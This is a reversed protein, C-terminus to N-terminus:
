VRIKGPIKLWFDKPRGKRNKYVEESVPAACIGFSKHAKSLNKSMACQYGNPKGDETKALISFDKAKHEANVHFHINCLNMNQYDDAMAFIRDNTGMTSDIDRPTQPGFGECADAALSVSSIAMLPLAVLSLIATSKSQYVKKMDFEYYNIPIIIM